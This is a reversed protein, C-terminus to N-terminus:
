VTDYPVALAINYNYGQPEDYSSLCIEPVGKTTQDVLFDHVHLSGRHRQHFGTDYDYQGYQQKVYPVHAVVLLRDEFHCFRVPHRNHTDWLKSAMRQDWVCVFGSEDGSVVKWTDM